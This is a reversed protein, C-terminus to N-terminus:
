SSVILAVLAMFDQFGYFSCGLQSTHRVSYWSEPKSWQRLAQVVQQWRPSIKNGTSVLIDQPIIDPHSATLHLKTTASHHLLVIVMYWRLDVVSQSWFFFIRRKSHGLWLESTLSLSAALSKSLCLVDWLHTEASVTWYLAVLSGGSCQSPRFWFCTQTATLKLNVSVKWGANHITLPHTWYHCVCFFTFELPNVYKKM